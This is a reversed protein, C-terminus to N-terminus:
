HSWTQLQKTQQNYEKNRRKERKVGERNKILCKCSEM